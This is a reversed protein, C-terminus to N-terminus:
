VNNWCDSFMFVLEWVQCQKLELSLQRNEELLRGIERDAVSFLLVFGTVTLSAPNQCRFIVKVKSGLVKTIPMVFSRVTLSCHDHCWFTVKVKTSLIKTTKLVFGTVTLSSSAQCWFTVKVQQPCYYKAHHKLVIFNWHFGLDHNACFMIQCVSSCVSLSLAIHRQHVCMKWCGHSCFIVVLDKTVWYILWVEWTMLFTWFSICVRMFIPFARFLITHKKNMGVAFYSVKCIDNFVDLIAFWTM